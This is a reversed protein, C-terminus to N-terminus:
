RPSPGCDDDDTSDPAAPLFRENLIERLDDGHTKRIDEALKPSYPKNLVRQYGPGDSDLFFITKKQCQRKLKQEEKNRMYENFLGGVLCDMDPQYSFPKTKDHPDPMDDCVVVPLDAAAKRLRAEADPDTFRFQLPGGWADDLVTGVKKNGEYLAASFGTGENGAFPKVAKLNFKHAM